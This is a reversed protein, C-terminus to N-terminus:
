ATPRKTWDNMKLNVTEKLASIKTMQSHSSYGEWINRNMYDAAHNTQNQLITIKMMYSPSGLIFREMADIRIGYTIQFLLCQFFM